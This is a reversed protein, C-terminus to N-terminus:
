TPLSYQAILSIDTSLCRSYKGLWIDHCSSFNFKPIPEIGLKRIKKLEEKLRSVSWANKVAIEPHSKYKVADGLDLVVMNIGAENIKNLLVNWLKADFRLYPKAISTTHFANYDPCDIIDRDHWMNYSLHMLYGWIM